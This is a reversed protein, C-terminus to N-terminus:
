TSVAAKVLCRHLHVTACRDRVLAEALRRVYPHEVAELVDLRQCDTGPFDTAAVDMAPWVLETTFPRGNRLNVVAIRCSGASSAAHVMQRLDPDDLRLEAVYLHPGSTLTVMTTAPADEEPPVHTVQGEVGERLFRLYLTPPLTLRLWPGPERPWGGPWWEAVADLPGM